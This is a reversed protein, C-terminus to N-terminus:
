DCGKSLESQSHNKCSEAVLGDLQDVITNANICTVGSYCSNGPANADYYHEPFFVYQTNTGYLSEDYVGTEIPRGQPDYEIYSFKNELAQQRM